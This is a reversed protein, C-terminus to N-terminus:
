GEEMMQVQLIVGIIQMAQQENFGAEVFATWMEHTQIAFMQLSTFPAISNDFPM